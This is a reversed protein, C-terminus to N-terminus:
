GADGGDVFGGGVCSEPGGDVVGAAVAGGGGAGGVGAAGAGGAVARAAVQRRQLDDNFLLLTPLSTAFYDIVAREGELAEAYRLLARLLEEAEEGRGLARLALASYYTMESFAQVAMQQFDGRAAAAKMYHRRAAAEDGLAAFARGLFYHVDSQNALLHKAEGLNRPSELGAEFFERAMGADGKELAWQGVLLHTRVYQGLALGEGGEWPQFQRPKLLGLALLPQGTQNYLTALEISLDDRLAVLKRWKELERLRLAPGKGVRKWLQDREYFVRADGPAREFAVDYARLAGEVDRRVNFYGIGLNRWTTALGPERAVAEEWLVIAEEHRRRDYLLNGLYFRARGDGAEAGIAAELILIEEPRSPFCYAWGAERGKQREAAAAGVDGRRGHLWALTYHVMPLARAAGARASELVGIGVEFFGARAFDLAVDLAIQLDGPAGGGALYRSAADFRDMRLTEEALARAEEARGLRCLAMVKLVRGQVHEGNGRLVREVHELGREFDGRACDMEALAFFSASQWAWNWTAKYFAAYAGEDDGLYRLAVGLYYFAEGDYPNPNFQTLAAIAKRFFGAAEGWEGRRLHWVGLANLCRTDKGDRRVAERWYAEPRRTAHRYQMLHLGILWLEENTGVGAPSARATAAAPM